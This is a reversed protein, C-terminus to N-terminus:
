KNTLLRKPKVIPIDDDSEIDSDPIQSKKGNVCVNIQHYRCLQEVMKTLSDIKEELSKTDTNSVRSNSVNTTINTTDFRPCGKKVWSDVEKRKDSWFLWAGFKDGTEKDTLSSNWKGGLAKLSDKIERTEGRVVFSKSTYDEILISM